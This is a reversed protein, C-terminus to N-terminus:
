GTEPCAAACSVSLGERRVETAVYAGTWLASDGNGQTYCITNSDPSEVKTEAIFGYLLHQKQIRDPIAIADDDSM